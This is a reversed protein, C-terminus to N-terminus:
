KLSDSQDDLIVILSDILRSIVADREEILADEPDVVQKTDCRCLPCTLNKKTWAKICPKCFAHKCPLAM